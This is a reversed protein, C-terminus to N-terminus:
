EQPKIIENYKQNIFSKPFQPDFRKIGNIDKKTVNGRQVLDSLLIGM